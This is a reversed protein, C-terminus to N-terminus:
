FPVDQNRELQYAVWDLVYCQKELNQAAYSMLSKEARTIMARVFSVSKRTRAREIGWDWAAIEDMIQNPLVEGRLRLARHGMEHYLTFYQGDGREVLMLGMEHAYAGSGGPRSQQPRIVKLQGILRVPPPSLRGLEIEMNLYGAIHAAAGVTKFLGRLMDWSAPIKADASWTIERHAEDMLKETAYCFSAFMVTIFQFM